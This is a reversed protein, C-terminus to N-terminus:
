RAQGQWTPRSFPAESTSTRASTLRVVGKASTSAQPLDDAGHGHQKQAYLQSTEPRTYYRDDHAHSEVPFAEPKDQVDDWGIAQDTRSTKAVYSGPEIGHVETKRDSHSQVKATAGTKTEHGSHPASADRHGVFANAIEQLSQCTRHWFWNLWSAPVKNQPSWGANRKEQPPSSGEANWEPPDTYIMSM